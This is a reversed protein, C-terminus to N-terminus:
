DVQEYRQKSMQRGLCCALIVGILPFLAIAIIIGGFVPYNNKIAVKVSMIGFVVKENTFELYSAPAAALTLVM